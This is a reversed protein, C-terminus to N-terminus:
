LPAATSGRVVLDPKLVVDMGGEAAGRILRLLLQAAQSGMERHRIRVTTLAPTVMDVMPMDNHGVVSMGAPCPIGRAGLADYVGLALLDNAAVISTLGPAADLLTEAAARGADRTFAEAVVIAAPDIARGGEAMAAQFGRLRDQGTSLQQPGALHGIRVHGLAILHAVALRMGQADDSVVSSVRGSEEARNVVVLPARHRLCFEVVPDRRAATALILGDVQRGLLREVVMQQRAPDAGANAVMAIYGEADLAAEIGALIPPFVPNTMDPLLIGVTQSRRTRLSAAIANPRYGLEAAAELVRQAVAETLRHRTAPNLARSVTSAHVGAKAAVDAVTVSRSM